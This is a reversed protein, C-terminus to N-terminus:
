FHSEAKWAQKPTDDTTHNRNESRQRDGADLSDFISPAGRSVVPMQQHKRVVWLVRIFKSTRLSRARDSRRSAHIAPAQLACYPGFSESAVAAKPVKDHRLLPLGGFVLMCSHAFPTSVREDLQLKRRLIRRDGQAVACTIM